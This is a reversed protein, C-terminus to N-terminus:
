LPLATLTTTAVYLGPAQLVSGGVGVRFRITTNTGLPHNSMSASAIEEQSTSLGDWCKLTVNGTSTNCTAGDDRFRTVVDDGEPTYGFQAETPLITFDFDPNAGAPAYDAISNAGSQMAPNSATSITLSYGVTNDTAVTVTTSGNSTGGAVGPISPSLSVTAAGSLSIYSYGLQQYGARLSYSASESDGTGVEGATSELTYNASDSLGGGFNISDSELQYNSSEMVQAGASLTMVVILPTCIFATLATTFLDRM